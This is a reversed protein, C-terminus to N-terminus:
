EFGSARKRRSSFLICIRSRFFLSISLFVRKFFNVVRSLFKKVFYGTKASRRFFPYMTFVASFNPASKLTYSFPFDAVVEWELHIQWVVFSFLDRFHVFKADWVLTACELLFFRSKAIRSSSFM